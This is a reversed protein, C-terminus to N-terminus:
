RKRDDTETLSMQLLGETWWYYGKWYSQAFSYLKEETLWEGSVWFVSCLGDDLGASKLSGNTESKGVCWSWTPLSMRQDITLSRVISRPLDGSGVESWFGHKRVTKMEVLLQWSDFRLIPDAEDVVYELWSGEASLFAINLRFVPCCARPITREMWDLRDNLKYNQRSTIPLWQGGGNSLNKM